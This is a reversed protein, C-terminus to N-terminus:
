FGGFSSKKSFDKNFIEKLILWIKDIYRVKIEEIEYLPDFGAVTRWGGRACM